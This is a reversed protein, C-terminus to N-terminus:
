DSFYGQLFPVKKCLLGESSINQFFFNLDYKCLTLFYILEVIPREINKTKWLWYLLSQILQIQSRTVYDLDQGWCGSEETPTSYIHVKLSHAAGFYYVMDWLYHKKCTQLILNQLVCPPYRKFFIIHNCMWLWPHVNVHLVGLVFSSM